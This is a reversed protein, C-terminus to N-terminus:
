QSIREGHRVAPFFRSSTEGWDQVQLVSVSVRITAFCATSHKKLFISNKANKIYQVWCHSEKQKLQGETM